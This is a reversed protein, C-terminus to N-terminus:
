IIRKPIGPDVRLPTETWLDSRNAFVAPSVKFVANALANAM